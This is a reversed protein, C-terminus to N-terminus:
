SKPGLVTLRARRSPHMGDGEDVAAGVIGNQEVEPEKSTQEKSKEMKAQVTQQYQRKRQSTLKENKAKLKDKRAQSSGGGGVTLEV